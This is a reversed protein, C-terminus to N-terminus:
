VRIRKDRSLKKNPRYLLVVRGILQVLGSYTEQALKEAAEKKNVPCNQGLKIKILEHADLATSVSRIVPATIGERGVHVSATLHHGLSRLQRRQQSTLVTQEEPTEPTMSRIRLLNM